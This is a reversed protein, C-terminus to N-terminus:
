SCRYGHRRCLLILKSEDFMLWFHDGYHLPTNLIPVPLTAESPPPLMRGQATTVVDLDEITATRILM